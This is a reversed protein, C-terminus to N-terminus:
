NPRGTFTLQGQAMLILDCLERAAGHGGKLDLVLDSIQKIYPHADYPCATFGAQSFMPLDNLDDGMACVNASTLKLKTKIEQLALSKDSVGQLVLKVQLEQMRRTVVPANRGTIIACQVGYRQLLTIGQGDRTSFKKLEVEHNDLYVGGDTLTGDVDFVVLKIPKLRELLATSRPGWCTLIQESM